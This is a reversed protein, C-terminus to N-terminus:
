LRVTGDSCGVAIWKGNPSFTLVNCGSDLDKYIITRKRPSVEFLAVTCHPYDAAVVVKKSDPSFACKGNGRPNGPRVAKQLEEGDLMAARPSNEDLTATQLSRFAWGLLLTAGLLLAVIQVNRRPM